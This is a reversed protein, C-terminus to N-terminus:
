RLSAFLAFFDNFASIRHSAGSEKRKREKIRVM